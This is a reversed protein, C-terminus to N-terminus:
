IVCPTLGKAARKLGYALMRPSIQGMVNHHSTFVGTLLVVFFVLLAALVPRHTIQYKIM